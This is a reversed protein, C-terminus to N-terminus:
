RWIIGLRRCAEAALAETAAEALRYRAVRRAQPSRGGHAHCVFQGHCAWNRCARGDSSRHARCKVAPRIDRAWKAQAPELEPIGSWWVGWLGYPPAPTAATM